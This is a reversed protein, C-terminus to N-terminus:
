AESIQHMFPIYVIFWIDPAQDRIAMPRIAYFLIQFVAFFLRGAFGCNDLLWAEIPHPIDTDIGDTGQYRHHELHYGPFKSSYPITIPLNAVMALCKSLRISKFALNHTIEHIALFCNQTLTAGIVYSCVWFEWTTWAKDRLLYAFSLHLSVVFLVVYKTKWTPGRVKADKLEQNYEKMIAIKRVMHPEPEESWLFDGTKGGDTKDSWSLQHEGNGFVSMDKAPFRVEDDNQTPQPPSSSQKSDNPAM